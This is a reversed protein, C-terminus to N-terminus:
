DIDMIYKFYNQCSERFKSTPVVPAGKYNRKSIASGYAVITSNPKNYIVRFYKDVQDKIRELHRKWYTNRSSFCIITSQGTEPNIIRDLKPKMRSLQNEKIQIKKKITLNSWFKDQTSRSHRYGDFRNM